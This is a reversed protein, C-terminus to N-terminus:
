AEAKREFPFTVYPVALSQNSSTQELEAASTLQLTLHPPPSPIYLAKQHIKRKLM